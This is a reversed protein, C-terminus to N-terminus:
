YCYDHVIMQIITNLWYRYVCIINIVFLNIIEILESQFNRTLGAVPLQEYIAVVHSVWLEIIIEPM